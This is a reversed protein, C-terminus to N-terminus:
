KKKRGRSRKLRAKLEKIEDRIVIAAEFDLNQAAKKMANQMFSLQDEYSMSAFYEPKEFQPEAETRSDAFRTTRLI